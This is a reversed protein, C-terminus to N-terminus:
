WKEEEGKLAKLIEMNHFRDFEDQDFIILNKDKCYKGIKNDLIRYIRRKDMHIKAIFFKIKGRLLVYFHEDTIKFAVVKDQYKKVVGSFYEQGYITDFEELPHVIIDNISKM